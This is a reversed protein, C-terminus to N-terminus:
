WRGRGGAGWGRRGGQRMGGGGAAVQMNGTDKVADVTIPNRQYKSAVSQVWTPVTASFLVTQKEAPSDKLIFEIDKQFGVRLMEDAEDLVVTHVDATSLNGREIHDMLRGPTAILIDVGQRISREQGYYSTGGYVSCFSIPLNMQALQAEVQKALERTPELIIVHCTGGTAHKKTELMKEVIPMLFALTKGTGTRSKGIIDRGEMAHKFVQAQIPYLESIKLTKTIIDRLENSCDISAVPVKGEAVAQPETMEEQTEDVVNKGGNGTTGTSDTKRVGGKWM